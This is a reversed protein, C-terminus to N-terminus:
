SPQSLFHSVPLSWLTALPHFYHSYYTSLPQRKDVPESIFEDVQHNLYPKLILYFDHTLPWLHAQRWTRTAMTISCLKSRWTNMGRWQTRCSWTWSSVSGRVCTGRSRLFRSYFSFSQFLCVVASPQPCWAKTLISSNYLLIKYEKYRVLIGVLMSSPIRRPFSQIHTCHSSAM